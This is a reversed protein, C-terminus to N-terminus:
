DFQKTITIKNVKKTTSDVTYDVYYSKSKKIMKKLNTVSGYTEESGNKKYFKIEINVGSQIYENLLQIVTSGTQEGEYQTFRKNEIGINLTNTGKEVQDTLSSSKNVIVLGVTILLIAILVSGAIILAKSANEM